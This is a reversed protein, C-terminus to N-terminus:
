EVTALGANASDREKALEVRRLHYRHGKSKVHVEWSSETVFVAQCAACERRQWTGIGNSMDERTPTLNAMAAPSLSGPEPMQSGALFATVLTEAPQLVDDDWRDLKTGDLLYVSDKADVMQLANLLKIRVWRIQRKAYQRTGAQTAEIAQQRLKDLERQSSQGSTIADQYNQFEKYGISVWIGRTQDIVGGAKVHANRFANLEAVEDLLGADLMKDVRADLRTRLVDNDCHLWLILAPWRLAEHGESAHNASKAAHQEAYTASATKGTRLYIELSRQIKRRDKPHWRDAMIPDVERLRQLIIPTDEQLIPYAAALKDDSLFDGDKPKQEQGAVEDVIGDKM